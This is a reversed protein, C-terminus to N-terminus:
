DGCVRSMIHKASEKARNWQAVFEQIDHAANEEVDRHFNFAIQIRQESLQPSEVNVPKVDLKLRGGLESRSYYGGFLADETDFEQDIPNNNKFFLERLLSRTNGDEPVILWTFNLGVASYPTQPLLGVLSGVKDRVLDAAEDDSCLPRFHLREPLITLHFSSSRVQVFAPTFVCAEGFENENIIEHRVLWMQTVISPNFQHAVVVANETILEVRM